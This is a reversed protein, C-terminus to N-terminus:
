KLAKKEKLKLTKVYLRIDELKERRMVKAETRDVRFGVEKMELKRATHYESKSRFNLKGKTNFGDSIQLLKAAKDYAWAADADLRYYGLIFNQKKHVINSLYPKSHIANNKRAIRRSGLYKNKMRSTTAAATNTPPNINAPISELIVVDEDDNDAGTNNKRERGQSAEVLNDSTPVIAKMMENVRDRGHSIVENLDVKLGLAKMERARASHYEDFSQFNFHIAENGSMGLREIAIDYICAADSQLVYSGLQFPRSDYVVQAQYGKEIPTIGDYNTLSPPENASEEEKTERRLKQQKQFAAKPNHATKAAAAAAPFSSSSSTSHKTVPATTTDSCYGAIVYNAFDRMFDMNEQWSRKPKPNSTM